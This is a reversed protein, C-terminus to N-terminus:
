KTALWIKYSRKESLTQKYCFIHGIKDPELSIMPKFNERIKQEKKVKSHLLVGAAEVEIGPPNDPMGPNAARAWDNGPPGASSCRTSFWGATSSNIDFFGSTILTQIKHKFNRRLGSLNEAVLSVSVFIALAM